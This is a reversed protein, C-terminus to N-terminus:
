VFLAMFFLLNLSTCVLYGRFATQIKIAAAEEKAKGTSQTVRTIEVVEVDTEPVDLPAMPPPAAVSYAHKDQENDPEIIKM